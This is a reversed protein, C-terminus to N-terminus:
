VSFGVRGKSPAGIEVFAISAAPVLVRSGKDDVLDLLTGSSLAKEVAKTVEDPTLESELVVDRPAHTVGIRVEM